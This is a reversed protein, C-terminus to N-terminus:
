LLADPTIARGADSILGLGRLHRTDLAADAPGNDEASVSVSDLLCIATDHEGAHIFDGEMSLRYYAPCGPLLLEDSGEFRVWEFGLEACIAAKDIDRASCGGLTYVLSAHTPHLLQLVGTRRKEFNGHTESKRFLSIAWRRPAIGIPSAYTLINMNTNGGADLTALAFVPNNLPPPAELPSLLALTACLM